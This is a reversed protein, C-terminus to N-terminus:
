KMTANTIAAQYLSSESLSGKPTSQRRPRIQDQATNQNNKNIDKSKSTNSINSNQSINKTSIPSPLSLMDKKVTSIDNTEICFERLESSLEQPQMLQYHQIYYLKEKDIDNNNSSTTTTADSTLLEKKREITEITSSSDKIPSLLRAFSCGHPSTSHKPIKNTPKVLKNSPSSVTTSITSVISSSSSGQYSLSLFPSSITNNNNTTYQRRTPIAPKHPSSLSLLSNNNNNSEIHRNPSGETILTHTNKNKKDMTMREENNNIISLYETSVKFQNYEENHIYYLTNIIDYDSINSRIIQTNKKNTTNNKLQQPKPIQSLLLQNRQQERYTDWLLFLQQDTANRCCLKNIYQNSVAAYRTDISLLINTSNNQLPISSKSDKKTPTGYKKNNRPSANSKHHSITTYESGNETHSTVTSTDESSASGMIIRDNDNYRYNDNDDDIVNEHNM